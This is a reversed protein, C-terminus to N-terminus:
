FTSKRRKPTKQEINQLSHETTLSVQEPLSSLFRLTYAYTLTIREILYMETHTKFGYSDKCFPDLFDTKDVCQIFKETIYGLKQLM